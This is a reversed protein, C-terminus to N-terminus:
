AVLLRIAKKTYSFKFLARWDYRLAERYYKLAAEKQGALYFTRFLSLCRQGAYVRKYKQLDASIHDERFVEEVLRTGIDDAYKLNHRLSDAHKYIRNIPKDLAASEFNTLAYAFVPIDESNRFQEPYLCRQFISRHMATAGNSPTITKKLLYGALRAEPDAPLAKVGRYRESGDTDAVMHGGVILRVSEHGAIFRRLEALADPMLEDDADLFILWEGTTNSIGYNRVAAPGSNERSVANFRAPYLTKLREIVASTDDTSGDDVILVEYDNGPQLLVSELARSLSEAYNYAPIVVSFLREETKM